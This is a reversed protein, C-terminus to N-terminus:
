SNWRNFRLSLKLTITFITTQQLFVTRASHGGGGACDLLFCVGSVKETIIYLSLDTKEGGSNEWDGNCKEFASLTAM